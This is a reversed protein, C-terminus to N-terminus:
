PIKFKPSCNSTKIDATNPFFDRINPSRYKPFKGSRIDDGFVHITGADVNILGCMAKLFMSKGSANRGVIACTEGANAEFSINNLIIRDKIQKRVSKMYVVQNEM